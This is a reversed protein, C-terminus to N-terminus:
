NINYQPLYICLVLSNKVNQRYKRNYCKTIGRVIQQVYLPRARTYLVLDASYGTGVHIYKLLDFFHKRFVVSYKCPKEVDVFLLELDFSSDCFNHIANPIPSQLIKSPLARHFGSVSELITLDIDFIILNLKQKQKTHNHRNSNFIIQNPSSDCRLLQNRPGDIPHCVNAAEAQNDHNLEPVAPVVDIVTTDESSRSRNMRVYTGSGHSNSSSRFLPNFANAILSCWLWM